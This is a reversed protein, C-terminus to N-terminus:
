RSSEAAHRDFSSSLVCYEDMIHELSARVLPIMRSTMSITFDKQMVKTGDDKVFGGTSKTFTLSEYTGTTTGNKFPVDVVQLSYLEATYRTRCYGGAGIALNITNYQDPTLRKIDQRTLSKSGEPASEDIKTIAKVILPLLRLPINFYFPKGNGKAGREVTVVEYSGQANGRNLNISRPYISWVQSLRLRVPSSLSKARYATGDMLNVVETLPPTRPSDPISIIVADPSPPGIPTPIYAPVPQPLTISSSPSSERPPLTPLQPLPEGHEGRHRRTMAHKLDAMAMDRRRIADLDGAAAAVAAPPSASAGAAVVESYLRRPPAVSTDVFSGDPLVSPMSLDACPKAVFSKTLLGNVLRKADDESIEGIERMDHIQRRQDRLDRIFREEEEAVEDWKTAAEPQMKRRKKKDMRIKLAEAAADEEQQDLVSTLVSQSPECSSSAWSSSSLSRAVRQSRARSMEESLAEVSPRVPRMSEACSPAHPSKSLAAASSLTNSM